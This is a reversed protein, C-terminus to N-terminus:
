AGGHLFAQVVDLGAPVDLQPGLGVVLCKPTADISLDILSDPGPMQAEAAIVHGALSNALWAV